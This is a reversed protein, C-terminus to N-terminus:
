INQAYVACLVFDKVFTCVSVNEICIVFFASDFASALVLKASFGSAWNLIFLLNENCSRSDRWIFM